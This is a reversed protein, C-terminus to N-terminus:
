ERVFYAFKWSGNVLRFGARYGSYEEPATAFQAPAVMFSGYPVFQESLVLQLEGWLNNADWYQFVGAGEAPPDMRYGFNPTMLSAIVPLDRKAVAKRLQGLVSQFSPEDSVDKLLKEQAEKKAAEEKKKQLAACGLFSLSISLLLLSRFFMPWSYSRAFHCSLFFDRPSWDAINM